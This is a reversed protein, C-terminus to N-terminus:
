LNVTQETFEADIVVNSQIAHSQGQATREAQMEILKNKVQTQIGTTDREAINKGYEQILIGRFIEEGKGGGYPGDTELGEFMPKIMEALFVAEFEKAVEEIDQKEKMLATKPDKVQTQELLALTTQPSLINDM